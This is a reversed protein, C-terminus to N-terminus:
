LHHISHINPTGLVIHDTCGWFAYRHQPLQSLQPKCRSYNKMATVGHSCPATEFWYWRPQKNRRVSFISATCWQGKILPIWQDGPSEVWSPGTICSANGMVTVDSHTEFWQRKPPKGLRKNLHLYFFVDFSRTVPRQSPFEGTLPSNGECLALLASFTEM